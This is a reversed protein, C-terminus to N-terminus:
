YNLYLWDIIPEDGTNLDIIYYYTGTPLLESTKPTGMNPLGAWDNQYNTNEYIQVGYRNYIKITNGPFEEICEIHFTDNFGDNNPSLGNTIFM